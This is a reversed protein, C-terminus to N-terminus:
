KKLHKNNSKSRQFKAHTGMIRNNNSNKIENELNGIM